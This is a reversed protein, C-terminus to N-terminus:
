LLTKNINNNLSLIPLQITQELLQQKGDLMTEQLIQPIFNSNIINTMDQLYSLQELHDQHDLNLTNSNLIVYM